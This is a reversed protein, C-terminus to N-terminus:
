WMLPRSTAYYLSLLPTPRAIARKQKNIGLDLTQIAKKLEEDSFNHPVIYFVWEHDAWFYHYTIGDPSTIYVQKGAITTANLNSAWGDGWNRMGAAMKRAENYAIEDSPYLTTWLTLFKSGNTNIYHIIAMDRVHEIKGRHSQKVLTLADEGSAVPLKEMGLLEEPAIAM